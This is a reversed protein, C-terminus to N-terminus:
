QILKVNKCNREKLIEIEANKSYVFPNIISINVVDDLVFAPRINDNEVFLQINTFRVNRAHRVYFASAPLVEGHMGPTPYGTIKEPVKRESDEHTGKSRNIIQINDLTINEVYYGPIGTISSTTPKSSVAIVNSISVHKLIGVPPQVATPTYKRGRNGLRIFIPCTIESISINNISVNELIGGDVMELSIASRGLPTGYYCDSKECPSVTCNGITINQFGGTSETGMKLANCHSHIVCNNIVVNKCSRPSTSKLCIGDDDSDIICDSVVVDHCGNIDIGDNNYNCHNYVRIGKIQLNDCALYHQMWFASNIMSIDEIKVNKCSIFLIVYPRPDIIDREFVAGQGNITGEGVISINDQNEAFILQRTVSGTRLAVYEPKVEKYDNINTSGLLVSGKELKLCVGSKLFISGTLYKGAPLIVTGGGNEFCSNIAKQLIETNITKGDPIAGLELVNYNSKQAIISFPNLLLFLISIHYLHFYISKEKFFNM